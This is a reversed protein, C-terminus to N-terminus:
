GQQVQKYSENILETKIALDTIDSGLADSEDRRELLHDVSNMEREKRSTAQIRKKENMDALLKDRERFAALRDLEVHKIKAQLERFAVVVNVSAPIDSEADSISMEEEEEEEEKNKRKKSKNKNKWVEGIGYM